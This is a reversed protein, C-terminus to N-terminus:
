PLYIKYLESYIKNARLKKISNSLSQRISIDKPQKLIALVLLCRLITECKLIFIHWCAGHATGITGIPTGKKVWTGSKVFITDCHAYFSEVTSGDSLKHDVRIINGWGKGLDKAFKVYGNAVVYITDGLDSNGGGVGNWDEGLHYNEGFKQANYYGKGNPKGVPFDFDTAIYEKNYVFVKKKKTATSSKEQAQYCSCIFLLACISFLNKM